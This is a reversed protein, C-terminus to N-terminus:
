DRERFFSQVVRVVGTVGAALGLFLGTIMLWPQTGFREDLYRGGFVGLLIPVALQFSVTSALAFARGVTLFKNINEKEDDAKKKLM